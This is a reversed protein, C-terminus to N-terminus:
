LFLHLRTPGHRATSINDRSRLMVCSMSKRPTNMLSSSCECPGVTCRPIPSLTGRGSMVATRPRPRCDQRTDEAYWGVNPPRCGCGMSAGCVNCKASVWAGAKWLVAHQLRHVCFFPLGLVCAVAPRRPPLLRAINQASPTGTGLVPATSNETGASAVLSWACGTLATGAYIIVGASWSSM